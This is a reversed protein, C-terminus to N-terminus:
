PFAGPHFKVESWGRSSPGRGYINDLQHKEPDYREIQPLDGLINFVELYEPKALGISPGAVWLFSIEVAQERLKEFMIKKRGYGLRMIYLTNLKGYVFGKANEDISGFSKVEKSHKMKVFDFSFLSKVNARKFKTYYMSLGFGQTHINVGGYFSQRFGAKNVQEAPLQSFATTM